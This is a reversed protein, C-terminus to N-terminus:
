YLVVEDYLCASGCNENAAPRGAQVGLLDVGAGGCDDNRLIQSDYRGRRATDQRGCDAWVRRMFNWFYRPEDNTVIFVEGDVRMDPEPPQPMTRHERLKMAALCHAHAVNTNDTFDFPDRNSGLQFKTRSRYYTEVMGPLVVLDGM